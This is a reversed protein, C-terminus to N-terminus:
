RKHSKKERMAEDAKEFILRASDIEQSMVAIGYCFTIPENVPGDLNKFDAQIDRLVKFAGSRDTATLLIAFEDGGLRSAEDTDRLRKHIMKGVAKLVDDGVAHGYTDNIRKFNDIDLIALTFPQSNRHFRKVHSQLTQHFHRKNSLGTLYDHQSLSKFNAILELNYLDTEIADKFLGLLERQTKAYPNDKNDLACITGFIKGDPWKLPLGYYAIMDLKVDPNDEWPHEERANRVHLPADTGVVTECYLGSGLLDTQSKEYPNEINARKMFVEIKETDMRMILAAPVDLIRTTMDLISQWKRTVNSDIAPKEAGIEVIKEREQARMYVKAEAM